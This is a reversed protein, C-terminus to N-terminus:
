ELEELTPIKAFALLSVVFVVIEEVDCSVSRSRTLMHYTIMFMNYVDEMTWYKNYNRFDSSGYSTSLAKEMEIMTRLIAYLVNDSSDTYDDIHTLLYTSNRSAIHMQLEKDSLSKCVSFLASIDAKPANELVARDLYSACRAINRANSYNIANSAVFQIFTDPLKNFEDKLYKAVFRPDVPDIHVTYDPLYKELKASHKDSEYICVITGVIKMRKINDQTSASLSSLFTEDYRVVYLTPSLPIIHKTTMLNFVESVTDCEVTQSYHQKLMDLYKAKIGSEQGAWIYFSRPSGTLIEKGAQQITIM